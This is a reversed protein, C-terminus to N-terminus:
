KRVDMKVRRNPTMGLMIVRGANMSIRMREENRIKESMRMIKRFEV